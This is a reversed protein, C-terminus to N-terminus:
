ITYGSLGFLLAAQSIEMELEYVVFQRIQYRYLKESQDFLVQQM